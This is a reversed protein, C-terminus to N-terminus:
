QNKESSLLNAPMWRIVSHVPKVSAVLLHAAMDVLPVRAM